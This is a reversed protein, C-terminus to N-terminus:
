HNQTYIQRHQDIYYTCINTSIHQSSFAMQIFRILFTTKYSYSPIVIHLLSHKCRLFSTQEAQFFIGFIEYFLHECKLTQQREVFFLVSVCKITVFKVAISFNMKTQQQGFYIIYWKAM